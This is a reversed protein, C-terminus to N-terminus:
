FDPDLYAGYRMVLQPQLELSELGLNVEPLVFQQDSSKELKKIERLKNIYGQVTMLRRKGIYGVALGLKQPILGVEKILATIEQESPKYLSNEFYKKIYQEGEKKKFAALKVQNYANFDRAKRTTIIVQVI